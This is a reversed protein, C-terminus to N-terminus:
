HIANQLSVMAGALVTGALAIAVAWGLRQYWRLENFPRASTSVPWLPESPAMVHEVRYPAHAEALVAYAEQVRDAGSSPAQDSRSAGSALGVSQAGVIQSPGREASALIRAADISRSVGLRERAAKLHQNVRDTSIGLQEAIEGPKFHDFLLRLCERQRETLRDLADDIM